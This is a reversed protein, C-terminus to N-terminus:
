VKGLGEGPHLAPLHPRLHALGCTPLVACGRPGGGSGERSWFLASENSEEKQRSTSEKQFM